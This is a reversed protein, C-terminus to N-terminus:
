CPLAISFVSGGGNATDVRISGGHAEVAWKAIALGLGVGGAERNRSDDLRYFRDFIRLRAEEPIGPGQDAIGIEVFQGEVQMADLVRVNVRIVGREPSYKIANDLLNVVAMRLFSRDALFERDDAEMISITQGKEEALVKVISVSERTLEMISLRSRNLALVGSEAHAITLLTDIMTTLRSVEELMSGIIDRYQAPDYNAQAGVEGISRISALPTRLEHSVDSTFRQLQQFSVELRELLDNLVRAMHGLEDDADKVPVRDHLRRATIHETLQAMQELPDLAKGAVRSGALGAAFLAFPMVLM